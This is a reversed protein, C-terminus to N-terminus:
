FNGKINNDNNSGRKRRSSYLKVLTFRQADVDNKNDKGGDTQIGGSDM